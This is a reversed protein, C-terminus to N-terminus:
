LFEVHSVPTLKLKEEEEPKEQSAMPSKNERWSKVIKEIAGPTWSQSLPSAEIKSLLKSRSLKRVRPTTASLKRSKSNDIKEVHSGTKSHPSTRNIGDIVSVFSPSAINGPSM